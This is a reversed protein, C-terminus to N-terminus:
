SKCQLALVVVTSCAAGGRALGCRKLDRLNALALTVTVSLSSRPVSHVQCGLGRAPAAADLMM